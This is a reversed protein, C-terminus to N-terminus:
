RGIPALPDATGEQLADDVKGAAFERGDVKVEGRVGRTRLGVREVLREAELLPVRIHIHHLKSALILNRWESSSPRFSLYHSPNVSCFSGGITPEELASPPLSVRKSELRVDLSLKTSFKVMINPYCPRHNFDM